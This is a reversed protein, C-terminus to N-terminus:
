RSCDTSIYDILTIYWQEDIQTIYFVLDADTVIKYSNKEIQLANELHSKVNEDNSEQIMKSLYDDTKDNIFNGIKNWGYFADNYPSCNFTVNEIKIPYIEINYYISSLENKYSFKNKGDVKSLEYIGYNPNIFRQNLAKINNSKIALLMQQLNNTLYPNINEKPYIGKRKESSNPSDNFSCGSIFIFILILLISKITTKM